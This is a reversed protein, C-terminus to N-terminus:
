LSDGLFQPPLTTTRHRAPPPPSLGSTTSRCGAEGVWWQRMDEYVSRKGEERWLRECVDCLAQTTFTESNLSVFKQRSLITAVQCLTM